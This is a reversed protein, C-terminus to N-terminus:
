YVDLFLELPSNELLKALFICLLAFIEFRVQLFDPLGKMLFTIRGCRFNAMKDHFQNFFRCTYDLVPHNRFVASREKKESTKRGFQSVTDASIEIDVRQLRRRKDRFERIDFITRQLVYHRFIVM